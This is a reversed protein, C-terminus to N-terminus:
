RQGVGALVRMGVVVAGVVVIGYLEIHATNRTQPVRVRCGVYMLPCQGAGWADTGCVFLLCAHAGCAVHFVM